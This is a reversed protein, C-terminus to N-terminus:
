LKRRSRLIRRIPSRKLAPRYWPKGSRIRETHSTPLRLKGLERDGCNFVYPKDGNKLTSHTLTFVAGKLPKGPLSDGLLALKEGEVNALKLVNYVAAGAGGDSQLYAGSVNQPVAEGTCISLKSGPKGNDDAYYRVTVGDEATSGAKPEIKVWIDPAKEILWNGSPDKYAAPVDKEELKYTGVPVKDFTITGDEKTTGTWTKIGASTADQVAGPALVQSPAM